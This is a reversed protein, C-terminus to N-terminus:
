SQCVNGGVFSFRLRFPGSFSEPTSLVFVNFFICGLVAYIFVRIRLAVEREPQGKRWRWLAKSVEVVALLAILAISAVLLFWM